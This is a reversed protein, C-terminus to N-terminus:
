IIGLYFRIMEMQERYEDIEESNQINELLYNSVDRAEEIRGVDALRRFLYEYVSIRAPLDGKFFMSLAEQLGGQDILYGLALVQFQNDDCFNQYTMPHGFGQEIYQKLRMPSEPSCYYYPEIYGESRKGYLNQDEGMNEAFGCLPTGQYIRGGTTYEYRRLFGPPYENMQKLTHDLTEFTEGPLGFIMAITCDINYEECLKLSEMIHKQRYSVQNRELVTDSFSDCTLIISFNAMALIKAFGADFPRPLFQSSFRFYEHLGTDIIRNVLTTCYSLDPINFETDM